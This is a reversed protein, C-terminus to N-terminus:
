QVAEIILTAPKSTVWWFIFSVPEIKMWTILIAENRNDVGEQYCQFSNRASDLEISNTNVSDSGNQLLNWRTINAEDLQILKAHNRGEERRIKRFYNSM